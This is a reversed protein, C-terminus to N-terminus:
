RTVHGCIGNIELKARTPTATGIGVRGNPAIKFMSSGGLLFNISGNSAVNNIRYEHTVNNFGQFQALAGFQDYFLMGSYSATTNGLNQVALGAFTGNTNTFRVHLRDFPTTTGLGVAGGTEFVASNGLTGAAGNVYKALVNTTGPLVLDATVPPEATVAPPPGDAPTPPAPQALVALPSLLALALVACLASILRM